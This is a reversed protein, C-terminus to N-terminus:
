SYGTAARCGIMAANDTCFRLAPFHHVFNESKAQAKVLSRLRSNAAVGGGITIKKFGHTKACSFLVNTLYTCVSERLSAAFDAHNELKLTDLLNMAYTKIGSFSYDFGALRPRPFKFRYADGSEAIEDLKAGAPYTLGMKRGIKDFIEGVANDRSIGLTRYDNYDNVAILNTHGGSVVLCLFPPDFSSELFNAAAHAELHNVPILSLGRALALGKAFSVGVLLPGVLGPKTTAAIANIECLSLGSLAERTVACISDLHRRSAAEPIVGGFKAHMKSQSAIVSSVVKRGDEIVAACTDDCSSEIALIKM